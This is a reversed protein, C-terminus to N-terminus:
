CAHKRRECKKYLNNHESWATQQLFFKDIVAAFSVAYVRWVYDTMTDVTPAFGGSRSRRKLRAPM